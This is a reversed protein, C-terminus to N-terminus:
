LFAVAVLAVEIVVRDTQEPGFKTSFCSSTLLLACSSAASIALGFNGTITPRSKTCLRSIVAKKTPTTASLTGMYIEILRNIGM